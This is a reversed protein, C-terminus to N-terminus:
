IRSCVKAPWPHWWFDLPGSRRPTCNARTGIAWGSLCSRAPQVTDVSLQNKAVGRHWDYASRIPIARISHPKSSRSGCIMSGARKIGIEHLPFQPKPLEPLAENGSYPEMLHGLGHASAKRLIPKGDKDLNFLAYRKASIAFCYLPKLSNGDKDYNIDEIKLISGPKEYSNLCIFWDIVQFAKKEFADRKMGDPKAIALSDTDCFVSELGHDLTLREALALMLRAAGTILVALLPHFYKGPQEIARFQITQFEGDPGYVNLPEPKPADDRQIEIFIGYSAANAIIKIAKENADDNSKAEDRLDILRNFVDHERPDVRYEPNSFLNIPKLGEQPPGPEFSIAEEIVPTKGSLLKSAVVDALTYWLSEDSTLTNLGITNVKGDYKARVPLIDGNPRIRVLTRLRKWTEKTQFDNLSVHNLFAQTAATSDAWIMGDAIVFAWLGMLGNVTPYMSKYDVYLVERIVRRIRVEARGGYYACM